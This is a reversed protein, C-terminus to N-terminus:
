ALVVHVRVMNVGRKALWRAKHAVADEGDVNQVYEDVAWFRVLKGSGLAFDGESTRRVFGSEGATRENLSRLDVLASTSFRDRPPNFAWRGPADPATHAGTACLAALALLTFRM